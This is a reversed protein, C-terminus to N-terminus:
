RWHMDYINRAGALQVGGLLSLTETDFFRVDSTSSDPTGVALVTQDHNLALEHADEVANAYQITSYGSGSLPTLEVRSLWGDDSGGGGNFPAFPGVVFLVHDNSVEMGYAGSGTLLVPDSMDGLCQVGFVNPNHDIWVGAAVDYRGIESNTTGAHQVAAFLESGDPSYKVTTVLHLMSNNHAPVDLTETNQLFTPSTPDLDYVYLTDSLVKVIVATKSDPSLTWKQLPGNNNVGNTEAIRQGYTSSSPDIDVCVLELASNSGSSLTWIVDREEDIYIGEVYYGATSAWLLSWVTTGSRSDGHYIGTDLIGVYEDLSNSHAASGMVNHPFTWQPTNENFTIGDVSYANSPPAMSTGVFLNPKMVLDITVANSTCVGSPAAGADFVAVQAYYSRGILSMNLPPLNLTIDYDGAGAVGAAGGLTIPTQYVLRSADMWVPAGNWSFSSQGASIGFMGSAGGLGDRLSMTYATNGMWAHPATLTPVFGGSGPSGDGAHQQAALLCPSTLFIFLPIKIM